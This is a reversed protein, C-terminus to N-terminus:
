ATYKLWVDGDRGDNSSPNSTSILINRQGSTNNTLITPGYVKISM